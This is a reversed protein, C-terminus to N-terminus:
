ALSGPKEKDAVRQQALKLLIMPNDESIRKLTGMDADAEETLQFGCRFCFDSIPPNITQCHTCQRPSLKHEKIKAPTEIGYLRLVENDIDQGTLHLYTQFMRTEVSGWMMQKVVSEQMGEKVLDTIRGHRFLHPTIHKKIGARARIREIQKLVQAHSLPKRNKNLFVLNTGDPIGPYVSRWKALYEQSMILRIYRPKDTKFDVNVVAGYQDFKVKNWTLTGLEGVRFGGEYLTMFFARDRDSICAKIFASLEDTTLLDAACKTMADKKPNKIAKLKELEITSYNNHIAWTYFQKLIKIFDVITNQKYEKDRDSKANKILPIARHIDSITNKEYEGVFLRLRVLTYTIKNVRPISIDNTAQIEACFSQILYVDRSSILGASLAKQLSHDAYEPRVLNFAVSEGTVHSM